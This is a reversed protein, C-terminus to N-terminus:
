KAPVLDGVGAKAKHNVRVFNGVIDLELYIQQREVPLSKFDGVTGRCRAAGCDCEIGEYPNNIYTSYDYTLEEHPAIDRIALIITGKPTLRIGTNPMCSHNTFDDLNGNALKFGDTKVQIGYKFGFIHSNIDKLKYVNDYYDGDEDIMIYEGFYFTKAAFIGLDGRKTQGIYVYLCKKLKRLTREYAEM